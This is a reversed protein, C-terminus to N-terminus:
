SSLATIAKVAQELTDFRRCRPHHAFSWGHDPAVVFVRKGAGLACGAELIAGLHHEDRQAILLVIDARAAQRVCAMWHRSWEEPSPEAGNANFPADLWDSKIDIAGTGRLAQLFPYHKSKAAVYVRPRQKRRMIM